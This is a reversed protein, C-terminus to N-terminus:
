ASNGPQLMQCRCTVQTINFVTSDPSVQSIKEFSVEKHFFVIGWIKWSPTTVSSQSLHVALQIDTFLPPVPAQHLIYTFSNFMWYMPNLAKVCCECCFHWWPRTPFASACGPNCFNKTVLSFAVGLPFLQYWLQQALCWQPASFFTIFASINALKWNEAYLIGKAAASLPPTNDPVTELSQAIACFM